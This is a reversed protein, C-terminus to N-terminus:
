HRARDFDRDHKRKKDWRHDHQVPGRDGDWYGEYFQQGDYRPEM